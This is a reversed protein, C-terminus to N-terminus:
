TIASQNPRRSAGYRAGSATPRWCGWPWRWAPCILRYWCQWCPQGLPRGRVLLIAPALRWRLYSWGYALCLPLCVVPVVLVFGLLLVLHGGLGRATLWQGARAVWADLRALRRSLWYRQKWSESLGQRAAALGPQQRLAARFYAEATVYDAQSLLLEGLALHAPACEPDLALMNRATEEALSTESLQRLALLRRHLCELNTPEVRLGEEATARSQAAYHWELEFRSRLAYYKASAPDLEIATHIAARAEASRGQSACSLALFYFAEDYTPQVALADRAAAEAEDYRAQQWLLMSLVVFALPSRPNQALERRTLEEALQYRRVAALHRAQEFWAPPQAPSWTSPTM